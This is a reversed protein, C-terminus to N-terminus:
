IGGSRPLFFDIGADVRIGVKSHARARQLLNLPSQLYSMKPMALTKARGLGRFSVTGCQADDGGSFNTSGENRPSRRCRPHHVLQIGHSTLPNPFDELKLYQLDAASTLRRYLPYTLRLENMQM